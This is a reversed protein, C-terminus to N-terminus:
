ILGQLIDLLTERQVFHLRPTSTSSYLIENVVSDCCNKQVNHRLYATVKFYEIASCFLNSYSITPFNTFIEGYKTKGM